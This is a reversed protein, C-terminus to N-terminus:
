DQGKQLGCVHRKKTFRTGMIAKKSCRGLTKTEDGREELFTTNNKGMM